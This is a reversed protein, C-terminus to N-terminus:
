FTSLSTIEQVHKTSKMVVSNNMGVEKGPIGQQDWMTINKILLSLFELTFRVPHSLVM